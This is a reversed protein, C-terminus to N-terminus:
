SLLGSGKIATSRDQAYIRKNDIFRIQDEYALGVKLLNLVKETKEKLSEELAVSGTRPYTIVKKGYLSQAVKM